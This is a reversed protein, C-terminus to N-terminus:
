VAIEEIVLTAKAVGGFRRTTTSGNFRMTAATDPGARVTFTLATTVGPVYEHELSIPMAYNAASATAQGATLADASSSSFLAVNGSAIASLTFIGSFRLRLRSTASKPTFAVSIIQTGETNQPITDDGPIVATLSANATYEAYTRDIVAGAATRLAKGVTTEPIAPNTTSLLGYSVQSLGSDLTGSDNVVTVTTLGTGADYASASISSYVTGGTNVSRVRRTAQFTLTQDGTVSFSTASIYTPAAAYIVWQDTTSAIAPDNIGSVDDITPRTQVGNADQFVFKYTRGGQLWVPSAPVGLSNLIIPNAQATGGTDDTYTTAPTTTGAIYTYLRGGSVPSGNADVQQENALPALYFSM